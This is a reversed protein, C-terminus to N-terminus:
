GYLLCHKLALKIVCDQKVSGLQEEEDSLSSSPAESFDGVRMERFILLGLEPFRGGRRGGNRGGMFRALDDSSFADKRRIILSLIASSSGSSISLEM